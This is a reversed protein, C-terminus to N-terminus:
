QPQEKKWSSYDVTVHCSAMFEKECKGCEVEIIDEDRMHYDWSDRDKWGCYPCTIDRQYDTDIEAM